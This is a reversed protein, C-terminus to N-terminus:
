RLVVFVNVRGKPYNEEKTQYKVPQLGTLTRRNILRESMQEMDFLKIVMLCLDVM